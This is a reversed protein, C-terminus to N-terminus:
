LDEDVLRREIPRDDKFPLERGEKRALVEWGKSRLEEVSLGRRVMTNVVETYSVGWEDALQQIADDVTPGVYVTRRILKGDKNGGM